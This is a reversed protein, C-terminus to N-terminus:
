GQAEVPQGTLNEEPKVNMGKKVSPSEMVKEWNHMHVCNKESMRVEEGGRPIMEEEYTKLAEKREQIGFEGGNWFSEIAKFVELADKIAHNLGQGRQFTMPHAADGAITVRGNRNDWQHELESPDWQRLKSYWVQSDDPMWEFVSRFPDTFHSALQRQYALHEAKTKTNVYDRPEPYSIYHFFTWNEPHEPDDGDHLSLWGLNGSPHPATQYLSHHPKARLFLAHERTHKSFCFTTAYDIPVVEAREPGLLHNRVASHPGDAGILLSGTDQTGDAFSATVSTGDESYEIDSLSKGWRVDIGELLLKRLKDRRFRYFKHSKIEMILEGTAGNIFPLRDSDKTAKNPDTQAWQFREIIQDPLLEELAPVAWHIGM